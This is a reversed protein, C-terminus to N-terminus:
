SPLQIGHARVNYKQINKKKIGLFVQSMKLNGIKGQVTIIMIINEKKKYIYLLLMINISVCMISMLCYCENYNYKHTRAHTGKRTRIHSYKYTSTIYKQTLFNSHAIITM